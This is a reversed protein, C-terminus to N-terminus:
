GRHIDAMATPEVFGNWWRCSNTADGLHRSFCSARASAVLVATVLQNGHAHRRREIAAELCM